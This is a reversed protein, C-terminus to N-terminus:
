KVGKLIIRKLVVQIQFKKGIDSKKTAALGGNVFNTANQSVLLVNIRRIKKLANQPIREIAADIINVIQHLSKWLIRM